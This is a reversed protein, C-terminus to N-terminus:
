QKDTEDEDQEYGFTMMAGQKILYLIGLIIVMAFIGIVAFLILVIGFISAVTEM